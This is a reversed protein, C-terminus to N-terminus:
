NYQTLYRSKVFHNRAKKIIKNFIREDRTHEIILKYFRFDKDFIELAKQSIEISDKINNIELLYGIINLFDQASLHDWNVKEYLQIAEETMGKAYLLCAVKPLGKADLQGLYSFLSEASEIQNYNILTELSFLFLDENIEVQPEKMQLMGYLTIFEEEREVLSFVASYKSDHLIDKLIVLDVVNVWNSQILDKMVEAEFLERVIEIDGQKEKCIKKILVINYLLESYKEPSELLNLALDPNGVNLCARVYYNINNQDVLNNELLFNQIEDNSHFKNLISIVKTIGKENYKNINLVNSYHKIANSYDGADLYIEGLRFHPSQDKLDPRLIIHNFRDANNIIYQYIDKADDIQGRNLFVEAKLYLFEPSNYYISEADEIVELADDHRQLNLLCSVIQVLTISVWSLRFDSKMKYAKLYSDLAKSYEGMSCYENGYNFFDFANNGGKNMENNLLQQNRDNKKRETVTQNLYGSHFILLNSNKINLEEGNNKKFQEHIARYYSIESNNKYIRDHYNQVLSEGHSGTFNLIKAGFADFIDSNAKLEIIFEKFNEEDVYEDADLVLIWEGTAKSAAFNRAASFDNIWEFDYIYSTYGAVILKTNDSSGTDVVIVEDVLHAVSGLCRDIVKEENKVIM